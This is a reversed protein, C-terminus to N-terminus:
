LVTENGTIHVIGDHHCITWRSQKTPLFSLFTKFKRGVFLYFDYLFMKLTNLSEPIGRYDLYTM